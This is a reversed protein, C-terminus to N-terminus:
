WISCFLVVVTALRKRVELRRVVMTTRTRTKDAEARYQIKKKVSKSYQPPPDKKHSPQVGFEPYTLELDPM